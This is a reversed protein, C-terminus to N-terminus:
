CLMCSRHHLWATAVGAWVGCWPTHVAIQMPARNGNYSYILQTMMQAALADVTSDTPDM